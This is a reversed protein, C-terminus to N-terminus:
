IKEPFVALGTVSNSDFYPPPVKYFTSETTIHHM